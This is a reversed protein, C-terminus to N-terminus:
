NVDINPNKELREVDEVIEDVVLDGVLDVLKDVQDDYVYMFPKAKIGTRGIKRAIPFAATLPIGKSKCWAYIVNLPPQKGPKRGFEVFMSYEPMILDTTGDNNVVIDINNKLNDTWGLEKQLLEKTETAWDKLLNTLDQKNM